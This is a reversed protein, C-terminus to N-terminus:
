RNLIQIVEVEVQERARVRESPVLTPHTAVANWWDTGEAADDPHPTGVAGIAIGAQSAIDCLERASLARVAAAVAETDARQKASHEDGGRPFHALVTKWAPQSEDCIQSASDSVLWLTLAFRDGIARNCRQALNPLVEHVCLDSWFM